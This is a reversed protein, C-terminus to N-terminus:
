FNTLSLSTLVRLQAFYYCGGFQGWCCGGYVDRKDLSTKNNNSRKLGVLSQCSFLATKHQTCSFWSDVQDALLLSSLDLSCASQNNSNVSVSWLLGTVISHRWRNKVPLGASGARNGTRPRWHMLYHHGWAGSTPQAAEHLAKETQLGRHHKHKCDCLPITESRAAKQFAPRRRLNVSAAECLPKFPSLGVLFLNVQPSKVFFKFCTDASPSFKRKWHNCESSVWVSASIIAPGYSPWFIRPYQTTCVPRYSCHTGPNGPCGWIKASWNVKDWGLPTSLAGWM